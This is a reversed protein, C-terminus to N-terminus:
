PHRAADRKDDVIGSDDPVDVQRLSRQVRRGGNPRARQDLLLLRADRPVCSVFPVFSGFHPMLGRRHGERGESGNEEDNGDRKLNMEGSTM